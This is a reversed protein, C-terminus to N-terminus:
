LRIGKKGYGLASLANLGLELEVGTGRGGGGPGRFLLAFPFPGLVQELSIPCWWLVRM